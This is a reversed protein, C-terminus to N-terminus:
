LQEVRETNVLLLAGTSKSLNGVIDPDTRKGCINRIVEDACSLTNQLFDSATRGIKTTVAPHIRSVTWQIDVLGQHWTAEIRSWCHTRNIPACRRPHLQIGVRNNPQQSTSANILWRISECIFRGQSCGSVIIVQGSSKKLLRIYEQIILVPETIERFVTDQWVGDKSFSLPLFKSRDQSITDASHPLASESPNEYIPPFVILATTLRFHIILATRTSQKTHEYDTPGPRYTWHLPRSSAGPSRTIKREQSAVFLSDATITLGVYLVYLAM